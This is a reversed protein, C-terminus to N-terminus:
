RTGLDWEPLHARGEPGPVWHQRARDLWAISRRVAAEVPEGRAMHVAIATALACGTGRPDPGERRPRTLMTVGGAQVLRDSVRAPDTGHGDKLLIAAHAFCRGLREGLSGQDSRGRADAEVLRQAEARNPTVVTAVALLPALGRPTAGLAGGDTARLVPDVVVPVETAHVIRAVESALADPVLGVKIARPRPWRSVRARLREAPVPWARAPRGRGQDTLATVAFRRPLEPALWRATVLDRYLGAGHTPDHGGLLWVSM